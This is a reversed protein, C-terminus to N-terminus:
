DDDNDIVEENVVLLGLEELIFFDEKQSGFPILAVTAVIEQAEFVRIHEYRTLSCKWIVKLTSSLIEQNIPSTLSIMAFTKQTTLSSPSRFQFFYLVKGFFPHGHGDSVKLKTYIM